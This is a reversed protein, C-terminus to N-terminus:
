CTEQKQTEVEVDVMQVQIAALINFHSLDSASSSSFWTPYIQKGLGPPRQLGCWETLATRGLLTLSATVHYSTLLIWLVEEQSCSAVYRSMLSSGAEERM